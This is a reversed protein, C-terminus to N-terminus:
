TRTDSDRLVGSASTAIVRFSETASFVAVRVATTVVRAKVAIQTDEQVVFVSVGDVVEEHTDDVVRV